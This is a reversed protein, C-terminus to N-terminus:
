KLATKILGNIFGNIGHPEKNVHEKLKAFNQLDNRAKDYRAHNESNLFVHIPHFDFIKLGAHELYLSADPDEDYLFHDDDEWFYPLRTMGYGPFLVPKSIIGSRRPLYINLDYKLKRNYLTDLIQSNYTVSHSRVSVADPVMKLYYDIVEAPNKGYRFDGNLLFNFNPHIGLEFASNSRLRALLPTEHTVFFTACVNHKELLDITHSLVDDSAWDIDFTLFLKNEYDSFCQEIDKVRLFEYKM